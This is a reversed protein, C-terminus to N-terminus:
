DQGQREHGIIKWTRSGKPLHYVAMDVGTAWQSFLATLTRKKPDIKAPFFGMSDSLFNDRNFVQNKGQIFYNYLPGSTVSWGHTLAVDSRGDFNFDAIVLDGYINDVVPLTDNKKTEYSRVAKCDMFTGMFPHVPVYWIKQVVKKTKKDLIAISVTFSDNHEIGDRNRFGVVTTKFDFEKSLDPHYCENTVTDTSHTISTDGTAQATDQKQHVSVPKDSPGACRVFLIALLLYSTIKLIRYGM